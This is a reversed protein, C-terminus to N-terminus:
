RRRAYWALGSAIALALTLLSLGGVSVWPAVRAEPAPPPAARTGEEAEAVAAPTVTRQVLDAQGSPPTPSPLLEGTPTPLAAPPIPGEVPRVTKTFPTGGEAPAVMGVTPQEARQAEETAEVVAESEEAGAVERPATPAFALPEGEQEVTEELAAEGPPPAPAGAGGLSPGHALLSATLTVVCLLGSVATAFTLAPALWRRLAPRPRTPAVMAPTLLFNRPARVQPLERVLAVTRRLGELRQRLEPDAALREELRVRERPSLEGDIYASLLEDM